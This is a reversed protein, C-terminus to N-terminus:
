ALEKTMFCVRFPLQGFDRLGTVKYGQKAYWKKLQINNDNPLCCFVHITEVWSM